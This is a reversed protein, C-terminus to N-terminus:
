GIQPWNSIPADARLQGTSNGRVCLNGWAAPVPASRLTSDMPLQGHQNRDLFCLYRLASACVLAEGDLRGGCRRNKRRCNSPRSFGTRAECRTSHSRTPSKASDDGSTSAEHGLYDGSRHTIMNSRIQECVWAANHTNSRRQLHVQRRARSIVERYLANSTNRTRDGSPVTRSMVSILTAANKVTNNATRCKTEELDM